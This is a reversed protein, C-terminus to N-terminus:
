ALPVPRLRIQVATVLLLAVMDAPVFRNCDATLQYEVNRYSINTILIPLLVSFSAYQLAVYSVKKRLRGHTDQDVDQRVGQQNSGHHRTIECRYASKIFVALLATVGTM